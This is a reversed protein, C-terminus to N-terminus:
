RSIAPSQDLAAAITAPEAELSVRVSVESQQGLEDQVVFTVLGSQFTSKTPRPALRVALQDAAQAPEVVVELGAPIKAEVFTLKQDARSSLIVERSDAAGLRVLGFSVARPFAQVDSVVNARVPLLQETLKRGNQGVGVLTVPFQHEGVPLQTNPRVLVQFAGHEAAAVEVTGWRPDCSAELAKLPQRGAVSVQGAAFERGAVLQEGFQVFAPSLELPQVVSGKFEWSRRPAAEDSMEFTLQHSFAREAQELDRSSQATLDFTVKLNITSRAPVTFSAPEVQTCLCSRRVSEIHADVEGTNTVPVHVVFQKVAAM